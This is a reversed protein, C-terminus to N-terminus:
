GDDDCAYKTIVSVFDIRRASGMQIHTVWSGNTVEKVCALGVEKDATRARRVIGQQRTQKWGVPVADPLAVICSCLLAGICDDGAHDLASCAVDNEERTMGSEMRRGSLGCVGGGFAGEESKGLIKRRDVTRGVKPDIGYERSKEVVAHGCLHAFCSFFPDELLVGESSEIRHVFGGCEDAIQM